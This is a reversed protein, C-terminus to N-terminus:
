TSTEYDVWISILGNEQASLVNQLARQLNQGQLGATGGRRQGPVPPANAQEVANDFQAAAIRVAQRQTELNQKLVELNRWSVRIQLKM